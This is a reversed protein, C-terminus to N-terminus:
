LPIEGSVNSTEESAVSTDSPREDNENKTGKNKKFKKVYLGPNELLQKAIKGATERETPSFEDEIYLLAEKIKGM